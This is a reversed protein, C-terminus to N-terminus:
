QDAHGPPADPGPEGARPGGNGDAKGPGRPRMAGHPGRPGDGPGRNALNWEAFRRYGDDGLLKRLQDSAQTDIRERENREQTRLAEMQTRIKDCAAEDADRRQILIKRVEVQQAPTLGPATALAEAPPVRDGPPGPPMPGMPGPQAFAGAAFLAACVLFFLRTRKM